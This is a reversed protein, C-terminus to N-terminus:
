QFQQIKWSPYGNRLPQRLYFFMMNGIDNKHTQIISSHSETFQFFVDKTLHPKINFSWARISFRIVGDGM